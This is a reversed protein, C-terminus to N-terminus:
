GLDKKMLRKSLSVVKSGAGLRIGRLGGTKKKVGGVHLTVLLQWRFKEFGRIEELAQTLLIRLRRDLQGREEELGIV